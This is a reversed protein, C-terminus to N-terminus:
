PIHKRAGRPSKTGGFRCNHKPIQWRKHSEVYRNQIKTTYGYLISSDSGRDTVLLLIIPIEDGESNVTAVPACM